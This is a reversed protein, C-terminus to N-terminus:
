TQLRRAAYEISTPYRVRRENACMRCERRGHHIITNEDNYEHGAPCHTKNGNFLPSRRLNEEHTVAELHSPRVCIRNRCLHDIEHNNPVPGYSLEYSVVHSDKTEGGGVGFRGYGTKKGYTATWVWCSDEDDIKNVKDWFRDELTASNPLRRARNPNVHNPDGYRKWRTYHM